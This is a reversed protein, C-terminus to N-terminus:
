QNRSPPTLARRVTSLSAGSRRSVEALDGDSERELLKFYSRVFQDRAERFPLRALDAIGTAETRGLRLDRRTIRPGQCDAIVRTAVHYLERVNDPFSYLPLAKVADPALEFSKGPASDVLFHEFLFTADGTRDRLPPIRLSVEAIKRHLQDNFLGEAALLRLSLSSIFVFRPAIPTTTGKTVNARQLLINLLRPQLPAPLDEVRRLVLTGGMASAVVESEGGHLGFLAAEVRRPDREDGCDYVVFPGERRRSQQHLAEAILRKGTGPEGELLVDLDTEALRELLVFLERMATSHGRVPGFQDVRSVPVRMRQIGKLEIDTHGVTFVTREPIWAEQVRVPGLWTGNTSGVDRLCVTDQGLVLEFHSQSVATDELVLDNAQGRGGEIRDGTFAVVLGAQPGSAVKLTVKGIREHRGDGERRLMRTAIFQDLESQERLVVAHIIALLPLPPLWPGIPAPTCGPTTQHRNARETM